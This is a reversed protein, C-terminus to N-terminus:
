HNRYVMGGIAILVGLMALGWFLWVFAAGASGAFMAAMLSGCVAASGAGGIFQFLQQLGVAGGLRATSVLKPLESAVGANLATCCVITLLYAAGAVWAYRTSLLALLADGLIIGWPALMMVRREGYRILALSISRALIVSLLAGPFIMLGTQLPSLGHIDALMQPLLFLLTFNNMHAAMGIGNLLMLPRDALLSPDIFPHASGKIHRGLWAVALIFALTAALSGHSIALMLMSSCCAVLWAGGWDFQGPRGAESPLSRYLPVILLLVVATVIFLSRWGGIQALIGGALPGLGFALSTASVILAVAQGRRAAPVHRGILVLALGKVGGAGIAQILRGALLLGANTSGYGIISGIGFCLLCAVLLARLSRFDALRSYTISAIAYMISYGSVIWSLSSGGMNFAKSIEPLAVNFMTTNMIALLVALALLPVAAKERFLATTAVSHRM